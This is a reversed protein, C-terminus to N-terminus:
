KPEIPNDFLEDQIKKELREISVVAKQADETSKRLPQLLWNKFPQVTGQIFLRVLNAEFRRKPEILSLVEYKLRSVEQLSLMLTVYAVKEELTFLNFTEEDRQFKELARRYNAQYKMSDLREWNIGYFVAQKGESRRTIIKHKKLHNLHAVLTPRTIKFGSDNLRDHLEVFRLPTRNMALYVFLKNCHEDLQLKEM